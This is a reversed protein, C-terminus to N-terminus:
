PLVTRPDINSGNQIVEFHLHPATTLPGAGPTGPRGGSLGIVQGAVVEQGAAVSVTRLHGYLTALGARHGILVYTYGTDGGDRVLFVVGEAAARVPTQEPVVIDIGHHPVGFFTKYGSDLFGASIYGKAPWQISPAAAVAAEGGSRRQPPLLGKEILAREAKEKLRADIRTMEAQLRLVQDHVDKMILQIQRIDAASRAVATKAQEVSEMASGAEAILEEHRVRLADLTEASVRAVLFAHYNERERRSRIMDQVPDNTVALVNEGQLVSALMGRSSGGITSLGTFVPHAERMVLGFRETREVFTEDSIVSDTETEKQLYTIVNQLGVIRERVSTKEEMLAQLMEERNTLEQERRTKQTQVASRFQYTRIADGLTEEFSERVALKQTDRPILEGAMQRAPGLVILTLLTLLVLHERRRVRQDDDSTPIPM